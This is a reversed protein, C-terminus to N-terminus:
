GILEINSIQYKDPLDDIDVQIYICQYNPRKSTHEMVERQNQYDLKAAGTKIEVPFDYEWRNTGYEDLVRHYREEGDSFRVRYSAEVVVDPKWRITDGESDVVFLRETSDNNFRIEDAEVWEPVLDRCYERLFVKVADPPQKTGGILVEGIEGIDQSRVDQTIPFGFEIM